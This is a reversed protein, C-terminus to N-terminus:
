WTSLQVYNILTSKLNRSVEQVYIFVPEVSEVGDTFRATPEKDKSLLLCHNM